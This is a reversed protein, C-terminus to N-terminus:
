LSEKYRKLCKVVANASITWKRKAPSRPSLAPKTRDTPLLKFSRPTIKANFYADMRMLSIKRCQFSHPATGQGKRAPGAM